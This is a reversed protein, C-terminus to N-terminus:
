KSSIHHLWRLKKCWLGEPRTCLFKGNNIEKILILRRFQSPTWNEWFTGCPYRERRYDELEFEFSGGSLVFDTELFPVVPNSHNM